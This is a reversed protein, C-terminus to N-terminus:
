NDREEGTPIRTETEASVAEPKAKGALLTKQTSSALRSRILRFEDDSLGGEQHLERFQSLMELTGDANESDERFYSRLWFILWISAVVAVLLLGWQWPSMAQQYLQLRNWDVM